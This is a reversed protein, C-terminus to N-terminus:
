SPGARPQFPSLAVYVDREEVGELADSVHFRELLPGALDIAQQASWEVLFQLAGPFSTLDGRYRLGVVDVAPLDIARLQPLVPIHTEPAVPFGLDARWQEADHDSFPLDHYVGFAPGARHIGHVELTEAVMDLTAVRTWPTYAGKVRAHAFRFGELTQRSPREVLEFAAEVLARACLGRM